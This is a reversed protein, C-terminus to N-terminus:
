VEHFDMWHTTLQEMPVSMVFGVAANQSKVFM